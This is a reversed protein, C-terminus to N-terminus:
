GGQKQLSPFVMMSMAYFNSNEPISNVGPGFPSRAFSMNIAIADMMPMFLVRMAGIGSGDPFTAPNPFPLEGLDYGPLRTIRLSADLDFPYDGGTRPTWAHGHAFNFAPNFMAGGDHGAPGVNGGDFATAIGTGTGRGRPKQRQNEFREM